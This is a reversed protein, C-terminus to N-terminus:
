GSPLSSLFLTYQFLTAKKLLGECVWFVGQFDLLFCVKTALFRVKMALFRVKTALFGVKTALFRVKTALFGVKTAL